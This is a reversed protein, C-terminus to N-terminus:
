NFNPSQAGFINVTGASTSTAQTAFFSWADCVNATLTQAPMSNNVWRVGTFTIAGASVNPNCIVLRFTAGNQVNSFGITAAAPGTQILQQNSKSWDITMNTSTVVKNEPTIISGYNTSSGVTLLYVPSSAIYGIATTAFSNIGTFVNNLSLKAYSTSAAIWIPDTETKVYALSTSAAITLYTSSALAQFSTGLYALSTSASITLFTSSAYTRTTYSTSAAIWIPDVETINGCGNSTTVNLTTFTSSTFTKGGNITQTGYISVFQNYFQSVNSIIVTAGVNHTLSLTTSAVESGSQFPLGRTCGTWSSATVGTCVISEQKFPVGSELTLYVKVTTSSSINSLVIANGALDKTSAVNIINASSTVYQTILTHYGTVPNYSQNQTLDQPTAGLQPEANVAVPTSKHTYWVGSILLAVLTVLLLLKKM